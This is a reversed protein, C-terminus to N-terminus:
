AERRLRAPGAGRVGASGGPCPRPTPRQPRDRAAGARAGSRRLPPRQRRHRGGNAARPGSRAGTVVPVRDIAAIADGPRLGARDAPSGPVVGILGAMRGLGFLRAVAPRLDARYRSADQVVM